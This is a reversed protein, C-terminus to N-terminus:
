LKNQITHIFDGVDKLNAIEGLAFKINFVKETSVVLNIHNLSDWDSIDNATTSLNIRITNNQFVEQFIVQLQNLIENDQMCVRSYYFLIVILLARITLEMLYM